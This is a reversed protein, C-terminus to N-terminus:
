HEDAADSTYLLWTCLNTTYFVLGANAITDDGTMSVTSAGNFGFWGIWLIFIGLAGITLNHGPIARAKGNKDFKGIRAGVLLAGIEIQAVKGFNVTDLITWMRRNQRYVPANELAIPQVSHLLGKVFHNRGQFGDDIYCYHHYDNACLRVVM